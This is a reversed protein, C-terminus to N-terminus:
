RKQLKTLGIRAPANPSPSTSSGGLGAQLEAGFGTEDRSGGRKAGYLVNRGRGM